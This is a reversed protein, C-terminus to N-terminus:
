KQKRLKKKECILDTVEAQIRGTRANNLISCNRSYRTCDICNHSIFEDLQSADKFVGVYDVPHITLEMRPNTNDYYIAQVRECTVNDDLWILQTDTIADLLVKFYNNADLNTAPFYIVTDVYFHQTKNPELDWGQKKVEERVYESFSSKYKKVEQPTYSMAMPRGGSYIVRYKLYHNVSPPISSVLFLKNIIGGGTLFLQAKLVAM